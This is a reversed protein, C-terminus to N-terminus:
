LDDWSGVKALDDWDRNEFLARVLEVPRKDIEPLFWCINVNSYDGSGRIGSYSKLTAVCRYEPLPKSKDEDIFHFTENTLFKENMTRELSERLHESIIEASGEIFRAYTKSLELREIHITLGGELVVKL